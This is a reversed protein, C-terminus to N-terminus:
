EHLAGGNAKIYAKAERLTDFRVSKDCVFSGMFFGPMLACESEEVNMGREAYFGCSSKRIRWNM